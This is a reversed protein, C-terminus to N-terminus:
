VSRDPLISGEDRNGFDGDFTPEFSRGGIVPPADGSVSEQGARAVAHRGMALTRWIHEVPGMKFRRFWLHAFAINCIWVVGVVGYLGWYDLKGFQGFGWSYFFATCLLSQMLYCTLAMRGVPAILEAIFNKPFKEVLIAGFIAYGIAMPANFGMEIVTSLQENKSAGIALGIALNLLVGIIGVVVLISRSQPHASPKAFIGKRAMWFGILFLGLLEFIFIPLMALSMGAQSLRLQMQELYTGSGYVLQENAASFQSFMEPMDRDGRSLASAASNGMGCLTIMILAGTAIGVIWRDDLRVFLMAVFAVLSYMLLIDGYWLLVIHLIGIFSLLATRKAYGGPWKRSATLKGFQLFLGAGFLLCLLGRMKGAILFNRLGEVWYNTGPVENTTGFASGFSAWGFAWINALLIGLIAFGRLVDLSEIRNKVTPAILSM